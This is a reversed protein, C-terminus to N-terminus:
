TIINRRKIVAMISFAILTATVYVWAMCPHIISPDRHDPIVYVHVPIPNLTLNCGTFGEMINGDYKLKVTLNASVWVSDFPESYDIYGSENTTLNLPKYSNWEVVTMEFYVPANPIGVEVGNILAVLRVKWRPKDVETIETPSELVIFKTELMSSNTSNGKTQETDGAVIIIAKSPASIAPIFMSIVVLGLVVVPM